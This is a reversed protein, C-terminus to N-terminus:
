RFQSFPETRSFKSSVRRLPTMDYPRTVESPYSQFRRDHPDMMCQLTSIVATNKIMRLSALSSNPSEGTLRAPRRCFYYVVIRTFHQSCNLNDTSAGRTDHQCSRSLYEPHPNDLIEALLEAKRKWTRLVESHAWLKSSVTPGLHFTM